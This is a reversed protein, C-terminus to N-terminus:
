GICNKNIDYKEWYGLHDQPSFNPYYSDSCSSDEGSDNCIKYKNMDEDFLIEFSPHYYNQSILPVHPVIDRNHVVRFINSVRTKLFM